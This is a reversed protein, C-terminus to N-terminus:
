EPDSLLHNRHSEAVSRRSRRKLIAGAEASGSSFVRWTKML